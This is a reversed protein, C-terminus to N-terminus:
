AIERPVGFYREYRDFLTREQAIRGAEGQDYRHEPRSERPNAALHATIAARAPEGLKLGFYAYAEAIAAVPDRMLTDYQLNFLHAKPIVGQEIWGIPQELSAATMAPDTIADFMGESVKQDSRVYTLTGIMNVASAMAKVPDRHAWVLRADPYCQLVLPVYRVSDPSKLVWRKGPNQWQIAKLIRKGYELANSLNEPGMAATYSPSLGLLNLWAPQQFACSEIMITEIAEHGAFEHVSEVQPTVRNWMRIRHDAAAFHAASDVPFMAECISLTRNEPDLSLLTQLLTTGTRGQGLVWIPAEIKESEIEPHQRYLEEVRLRAELMMLLDSRTMLRGVLNLQAEGDLSAVLREFPERWDPSGFNSLGTNRTASAILSAPDLPVVGYLDLGAGEDNLRQVWEPRAPAKWAQRRSLPATPETAPDLTTAM